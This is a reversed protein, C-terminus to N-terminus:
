KNPRIRRVFALMRRTLINQDREVQAVARSAPSESNVPSVSYDKILAKAYREKYLACSKLGDITISIDTATGTTEVQAYALLCNSWEVLAAPSAEAPASASASAAAFALLLQIMLM